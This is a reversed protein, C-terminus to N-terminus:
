CQNPIGIWDNGKLCESTMHFLGVCRGATSTPILQKCNDDCDATSFPCGCSGSDATM